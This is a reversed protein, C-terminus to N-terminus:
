MNRGEPAPPDVANALTELRAFSSSDKGVILHSDLKYILGLLEYQKLKPVCGAERGNSKAM